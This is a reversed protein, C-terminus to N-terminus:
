KDKTRQSSLNIKKLSTIDQCAANATHIVIKLNMPSKGSGLYM